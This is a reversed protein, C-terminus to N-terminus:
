WSRVQADMQSSLNPGIRAKEERGEPSPAAIAAEM